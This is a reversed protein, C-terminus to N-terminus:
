GVSNIQAKEKMFKGMEGGGGRFKVKELDRKAEGTGCRNCQPACALSVKVSNQQIKAKTKMAVPSIRIRESNIGEEINNQITVKVLWYEPKLRKTSTRDGSNKQNGMTPM